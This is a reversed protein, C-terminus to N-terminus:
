DMAVTQAQVSHAVNPVVDSGPSLRITAGTSLSGTLSGTCRGTQVCWAGLLNNFSHNEEYFVVVHKIPTPLQAAAQTMSNPVVGFAIGFTGIILILATIAWHGWRPAEGSRGIPPKVARSLAM